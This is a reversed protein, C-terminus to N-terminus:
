QKQLLGPVEELINEEHGGMNLHLEWRPEHVM